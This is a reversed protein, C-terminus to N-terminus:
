KQEELDDEHYRKFEEGDIDGFHDGSTAMPINFDSVSMVSANYLRRNGWDYAGHRTGAGTPRSRGM